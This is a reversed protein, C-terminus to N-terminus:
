LFKGIPMIKSRQADRVIASAFNLRSPLRMLRCYSEGPIGLHHGPRLTDPPLQPRRPADRHVRALAGCRWEPRPPRALRRPRRAACADAGSARGSEASAQGHTVDSQEGEDEGHQRHRSGLWEDANEHPGPYREHVRMPQAPAEDGGHRERGDCEPHRQESAQQGPFRLPKRDIGNGHEQQDQQCADGRGRRNGEGRGCDDPRLPVIHGLDDEAQQQRRRQQGVALADVAEDPQHDNRKGIEAHLTTDERQQGAAVEDHYARLFEIM